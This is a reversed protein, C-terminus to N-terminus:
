HIEWCIPHAYEGGDLDSIIHFPFPSPAHDKDNWWLRRWASRETCLKESVRFLELWMVCRTHFHPLSIVPWILM